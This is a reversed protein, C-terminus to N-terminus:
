NRTKSNLSMSHVFYTLQIEKSIIFNRRRMAGTLATGLGDKEDKNESYTPEKDFEQM